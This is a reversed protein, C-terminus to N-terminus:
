CRRLLLAAVCCRLLAAACRRLLAAARFDRTKRLRFVPDTRDSRPSKGKRHHHKLHVSASTFTIFTIIQTEGVGGEGGGDSDCARMFSFQCSESMRTQTHPPPVGIEADEM